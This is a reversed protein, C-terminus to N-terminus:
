PLLAGGQALQRLAEGDLRCNTWDTMMRAGIGKYFAISPENWDLVSWELRALNEAACRQALSRVLAKGIGHGRFLPRVFLDEIWIGHRGRFTSFSYFWISLGVTEGEREALDCFVRPHPNFLAEALAEVSADMEDTLGEYQALETVLAHILAADLPTAPRVCPASSAGSAKETSTARASLDQTKSM